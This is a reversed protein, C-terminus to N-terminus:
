GSCTSMEGSRTQPTSCPPAAPNEKLPSRLQRAAALWRLASAPGPAAIIRGVAGMDAPM